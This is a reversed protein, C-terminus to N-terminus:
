MPKTPIEEGNKGEKVKEFVEDLWIKLDFDSTVIDPTIFDKFNSIVVDNMPYKIVVGDRCSYEGYDRFKVSLEFANDISYGLVTSLQKLKENDVVAGMNVTTVSSIAGYYELAKSYIEMQETLSEPIRTTPNRKENVYEFTFSEIIDGHDITRQDIFKEFDKREKKEKITTTIGLNESLKENFFNELCYRITVTKSDWASTKEIALQCRGDRFDVVVYGFPYSSIPVGICDKVENGKKEPLYYQTYNEKNHIRILAIGDENRLVYNPVHEKGGNQRTRNLDLQNGVGGIIKGLYYNPFKNVPKDQEVLEYLDLKPTVTLGINHIIYDSM